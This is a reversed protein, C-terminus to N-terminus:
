GFGQFFAARHMTQDDLKYVSLTVEDLLLNLGHHLLAARDLGGGGIGQANAKAADNTQSGIVLVILPLFDPDDLAGSCRLLAGACDLAIARARCVTGRGALPM